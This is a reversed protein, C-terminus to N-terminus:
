RERRVEQVKDEGLTSKLEERTTNHTKKREADERLRTNLHLATIAARGAAPRHGVSGGPKLPDGGGGRPGRLGRM